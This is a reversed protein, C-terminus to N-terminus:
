DYFDPPRRLTMLQEHDHGFFIQGGEKDVIQKVRKFSELEGAASWTFAHPIGPAYGNVPVSYYMDRIECASLVVTGTRPLRVVINEFGPTHGPLALIEVEKGLLEFDGSITMFNLGEVEWYKRVYMWAHFQEIAPEYEPKPPVGIRDAYELEKQQLVIRAKKGAFAPLFGTHESMLHSIVVYDIDEPKVGITALQSIPNENPGQSVTLGQAGRRSPFGTFRRLYDAVLGTDFLIKAQPHDIYYQCSATPYSAPQYEKGTDADTGFHALFARETWMTGSNLVYLKM